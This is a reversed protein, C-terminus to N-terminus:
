KRVLYVRVEDVYKNEFGFWTDGVVADLPIGVPKIEEGTESCIYTYLINRRVKDDERYEHIPQEKLRIPFVSFYVGRNKDLYVTGTLLEAGPKIDRMTVLRHDPFKHAIKRFIENRNFSTIKRM